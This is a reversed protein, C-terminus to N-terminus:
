SGEGSRGTRILLERDAVTRRRPFFEHLYVRRINTDVFLVPKNFAFAAVAGATYPGIGPLEKLEDPDSPLKGEWQRM